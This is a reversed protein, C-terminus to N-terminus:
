RDRGGRGREPEPTLREQEQQQDVQRRYDRDDLYRRWDLKNQLATVAKQAMNAASDFMQGALHEIGKDETLAIFQEARLAIEKQTAEIGQFQSRDLSALFKENEARADGTTHRDLAYVKGMPDVAVFEGERYAPIDRGQVKAAVQDSRSHAAEAATAVALHIGRADLIQVFSQANRSLSYALRINSFTAEIEKEPPKTTVSLEPAPSGRESELPKRAKEIAQAITPLAERDVEAMRQRVEAAKAGTCRGLSHVGGAQDVVVFDRRDGKALAFGHDNLAAVFSRGSDSGQWLEMIQVKVQRPDLALREGQQMQWKPMTREPRDQGAREIHAGQVRDHGFERELQRSVEEHKRYNHSDRVARMTELDIRNWVVHIHERGHKQHRVVARAHDRLGLKEELTDISRDWQEPTMTVNRAPDINAHYLPKLCRTTEASEEMEVLAGRLDTSLCGRVDLLEIRENKARNMLHTALSKAGYRSQGNIIM